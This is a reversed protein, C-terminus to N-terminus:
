TGERERIEGAVIHWRCGYRQTEVSLDPVVIRTVSHHSGVTVVPFAAVTDSVGERGDIEVAHLYGIDVGNELGIKIFFRTLSFLVLVGTM